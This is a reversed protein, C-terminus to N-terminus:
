AIEVGVMRRPKGIDVIGPANEEEIRNVGGGEGGEVVVRGGAERGGGVGNGGRGVDGDAGGGKKWGEGPGGWDVEGGIVKREEDGEEIGRRRRRARATTERVETACIPASEGCLQLREDGGSRWGRGVITLSDETFGERSSCLVVDRSAESSIEIWPERRGDVGELSLTVVETFNIRLVRSDGIEIM